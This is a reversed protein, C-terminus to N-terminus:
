RDIRTLYEATCSHLFPDGSPRKFMVYYIEDCQNFSRGDGHTIEIPGWAGKVVGAGHKKHLVPTGFKLLKKMKKKGSM